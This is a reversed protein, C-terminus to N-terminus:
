YYFNLICCVLVKASHTPVTLTLTDEPMILQIANRVCCDALYDPLM